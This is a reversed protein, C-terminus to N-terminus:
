NSKIDKDPKQTAIGILVADIFDQRDKPLRSIRQALDDAMVRDKDARPADPAVLYVLYCIDTNTVTALKVLQKLSPETEGKVWRAVTTHPVKMEKALDNITLLRELLYRKIFRGIESETM